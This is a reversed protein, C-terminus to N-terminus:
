CLQLGLRGSRCPLLMSELLCCCSSITVNREARLARESKNAATSFRVELVVKHSIRVPCQTTRQTTPRLLDDDPMRAVHSVELSDGSKIFGLIHEGLPVPTKSNVVTSPRTSKFPEVGTRPTQTGSPPTGPRRLPTNYDINFLQRRHPTPNGTVGPKAHSYLVYSQIIMATVSHVRLDLPASAFNMTFHM